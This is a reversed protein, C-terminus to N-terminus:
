EVSSGTEWINEINNKFVMMMSKKVGKPDQYPQFMNFGRYFGRGPGEM